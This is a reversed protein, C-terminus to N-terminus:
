SENKKNFYVKELLEAIEQCIMITLSPERIEEIMKSEEPKSTGPGTNQEGNQILEPKLSIYPQNLQKSLNISDEFQSIKIDGNENSNANNKANSQDATKKPSKDKPQEIIKKPSNEKINLTEQNEIIEQKKEELIENKNEGNAQLNEDHSEENKSSNNESEKNKKINKEEEGFFSLLVDQKFKNLLKQGIKQLSTLTATRGCINVLRQIDLGFQSEKLEDVNIENKEIIKELIDELKRKKSLVTKASNDFIASRIISQEEKCCFSKNNKKEQVESIVNENQMPQSKPTEKPTSIPASKPTAKVTKSPSANNESSSFNEEPNPRKRKFVPTSKESGTNKANM